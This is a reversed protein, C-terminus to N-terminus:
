GEGAYLSIEVGWAGGPRQHCECRWNAAGDDAGAVLAVADEVAKLASPLNVTRDLMQGGLRTLVVRVPRGEHYARAFPVVYELHRGLALCVVRRAEQTRNAKGHWGRSNAESATKLPIVWTPVPSPSFTAEVVESAKKRKGRGKNGPEQILGKAVLEAYLEKSIQM